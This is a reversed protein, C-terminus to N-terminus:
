FILPRITETFSYTTFTSSKFRSQERERHELIQFIGTMTMMNDSKSHEHINPCLSVSQHVHFVYGLVIEDIIMLRHTKIGIRHTSWISLITKLM